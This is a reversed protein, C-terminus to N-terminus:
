FYKKLDYGIFELNTGYTENIWMLSKYTNLGGAFPDLIRNRIENKNGSTNLWPLVCTQLIPITVLSPHYMAPHETGYNLSQNAVSTVILEDDWFDPLNKGSSSPIYPTGIIIENNGKNSRHRPPHSAKTDTSLPLTMREYDYDMSKVLHFIYEFSNTPRNKISSPKPNTKKYIITSRLKFKTKDLLKFLVKHPSCQDEGDKYSSGLNLYFSGTDSLVRYCSILHNSLNEAYEDVSRETGIVVKKSYDRIGLAYPPSTFICQITNDKVEELLHSSKQYFTFEKRNTPSKFKTLKRTTERSLREEEERRLNLYAQNVTLIGSDILEIYKPNRKHVYLIRSLQSDTIKIESSVVSRVRQGKNLGKKKHYSELEFYENLLEQTTKIRQRNFHILTLVEDGKKVNIQHVEIEEWGLRKVSEFRRNGSVVQFHQDVTPPELLGVQKISEMLSDIGSLSYIRKNLPHHILQNVKVKM